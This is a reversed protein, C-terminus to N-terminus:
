NTGRTLVPLAAPELTIMCNCTIEMPSNYLRQPPVAGYVVTLVRAWRRQARHTCRVIQLKALSTPLCAPQSTLNPSMRELLLWTQCRLLAQCPMRPPAPGGWSRRRTRCRWHRQPRCSSSSPKRPSWTKSRLAFSLISVDQQSIVNCHCSGPGFRGDATSCLMSCCHNEVCAPCCCM